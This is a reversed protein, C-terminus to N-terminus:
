YLIKWKNVFRKDVEIMRKQFPSNEEKPWDPIDKDRAYMPRELLICGKTKNISGKTQGSFLDPINVDFLFLSVNEPVDDISEHWLFEKYLRSMEHRVRHEIVYGKGAILGDDERFLTTSYIFPENKALKYVKSKDWGYASKFARSPTGYEQLDHSIVTIAFIDQDSLNAIDMESSTTLWSFEYDKYNEFDDKINSSDYIRRRLIFLREAEKRHEQTLGNVGTM